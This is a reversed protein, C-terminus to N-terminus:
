RAVLKEGDTILSFVEGPMKMWGHSMESRGYASEPPPADKSSENQQPAAGRALEVWGLPRGRASYVVKVAVKPAGEAPTEGKGLVESPFLAWVRDHWNKATEDPKDPTAAPALRIGPLDQGVRSAKFDKSKAGVSATVTDVEELRFKHLRREVLNTSASQLDSLIHRKVLYVRGDQEDRVYPDNGGPPAPAIAFRRKQGRATIEIHKKTGELGLEKLRVTDLVGLARDARLPAFREFLREASEAGRVLRDPVKLPVYPHGSPLVAGSSDSGSLRLSVFSGNEDKDRVLESWSKFEQDDYRVKELDGRGIDLAFVEGASLEPDRQWTFYAAVLATAALAGQLSVARRTM